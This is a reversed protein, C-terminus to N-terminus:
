IEIIIALELGVLLFIFEILNLVKGAKNARLLFHGSVVMQQVFLMTGKFSYFQGRSLNMLSFKYTLGLGKRSIM